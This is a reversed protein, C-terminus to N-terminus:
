SSFIFLLRSPKFQQMHQHSVEAEGDVTHARPPLHSTKHAPHWGWMVNITKIVPARFVYANTLVVRCPFPDGWIKTYLPCFQQSLHCKEAKHLIVSALLIVVQHNPWCTIKLNPGVLSYWKSIKSKCWSRGKYGLHIELENDEQRGLRRLVPIM